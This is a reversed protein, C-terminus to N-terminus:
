ELLVMGSNHHVVELIDLKADSLTGINPLLLISESSVSISIQNWDGVSDDWKVRINRFKYNLKCRVLNLFICREQKNWNIPDDFVYRRKTNEQKPKIWWSYPFPFDIDFCNYILLFNNNKQYELCSKNCTGSQFFMFLEVWRLPLSIM